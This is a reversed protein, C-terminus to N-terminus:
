QTESVEESTM